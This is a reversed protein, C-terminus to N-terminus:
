SSDVVRGCVLLDYMCSCSLVPGRIEPTLLSSLLAASAHMPSMCLMVPVPQSTSSDVGSVVAGRSILIDNHLLGARHVAMSVSNHPKVHIMFFASTISPGDSRSCVSM